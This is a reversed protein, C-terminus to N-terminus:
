LCMFSDVSFVPFELLKLFHSSYSANNMWSFDHNDHWWTENQDLCISFSCLIILIQWLYWLLCPLCMPPLYISWQFILGLWRGEGWDDLYPFLNVWWRWFIANVACMIEGVRMQSLTDVREGGQLAWLWWLTQQTSVPYTLIKICGLSDIGPLAM